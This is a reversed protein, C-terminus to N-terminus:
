KELEMEIREVDERLFNSLESRQGVFVSHSHLAFAIFSPETKKREGRTEASRNVPDPDLGYTLYEEMKITISNRTLGTYIVLM